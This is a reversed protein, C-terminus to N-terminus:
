KELYFHQFQKFNHRGKCYDWDLFVGELHRTGYNADYATRGHLIRFNQEVLCDGAKLRSCYQYDPSKLYNFFTKYAEYFSEVKDFKLNPKCNKHSFYIESVEGKQNLKLIPNINCLYYQSHLDFQKFHIPTEALTNFYEPHNQRFDRAVRYGDVVISEGGSANNEVCYLFQLVRGINLYTFDTHPLLPHVSSYALDVAETGKIPKVPIFRGYYTEYIPGLSCVLSELEKTSQINELITFGLSFLQNVWVDSDCNHFDHRLTQEKQLDAKNWLIIKNSSEAPTDLEHVHAMLWSIPFVSQHIPQEQWTITLKDDEEVVSVPKPPSQAESIDYIKQFSNPDRCEPCLCNDRLWMYHFRNGNVTIFNEEQM